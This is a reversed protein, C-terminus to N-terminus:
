PRIRQVQIDPMLRNWTALTFVECGSVLPRVWPRDNPGLSPIAREIRSRLPLLEPETLTELAILIAYVVPYRGRGSCYEYLLSDRLKGFLAGALKDSLMERIFNDRAAQQANPHDPDKVELYIHQGDHDIIFDVAKMCRSLGHEPGDFKRVTADGPFTFRLAGEDFVTM